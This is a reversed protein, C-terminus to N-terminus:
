GPFTPSFEVDSVHFSTTAEQKVIEDHIRRELRSPLMKLEFMTVGESECLALIRSALADMKKDHDPLYLEKM